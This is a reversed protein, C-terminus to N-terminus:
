MPQSIYNHFNMFSKKQEKKQKEKKSKELIQIASNLEEDSVDGDKNTDVLKHLVRYKHPMVCYHSEENFLHDSLVTFAATLVLSTIVCRTGMFCMSFVLIQKTVTMKLYEETSKSFQISIFKSGVNLIIMSLGIFYKNSNIYNDLFSHGHTSYSLSPETKKSKKM